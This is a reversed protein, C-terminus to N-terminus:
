RTIKRLDIVFVLAANAPIKPPQGQPGYALNSPIILERRGGLRMGVLGQDWGKIVNGQGLTFDFPQGRDWSADFQKGGKFLVGVYQVEVQDGSKAAEGSGAVLDKVILQKPPAGKPVAVKPKSATAPNAPATFVKPQPISTGGGSPAAQVGSPQSSGGCGVIFAAVVSTSGLAARRLTRRIKV